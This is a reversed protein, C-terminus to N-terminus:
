GLWTKQNMMYQYIWAYKDKDIGDLSKQFCEEHLAKISYNYKGLKIVTFILLVFLTPCSICPCFNLYYINMWKTHQKRIYIYKEVMDTLEQNETNM